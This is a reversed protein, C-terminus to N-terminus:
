GVERRWVGVVRDWMRGILNRPATEISAFGRTEISRGNIAPTSGTLELEAKYTATEPVWSRDAAQKVLVPGGGPGAIIPAEIRAIAQDFITKVLVPSQGFPQGDLWLSGQAASSVLYLDREEIYAEASLTGGSVVRLLPQDNRVWAGPKLGPEVDRVIGDQGARLVLRGLREQLGLIEV